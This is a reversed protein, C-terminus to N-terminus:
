GKLHPQLIDDLTVKLGCIRAFRIIKCCTQISPEHKDNEYDSWQYDYIKLEKAIAYKTLGIRERFSRLYEGTSM